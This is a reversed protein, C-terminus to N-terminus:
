QERWCRGTAAKGLPRTRASMVPRRTLRRQAAVSVLPAFSPWPRQLPSVACVRVVSVPGLYNSSVSPWGGADGSGYEGRCIRIDDTQSVHGDSRGPEYEPWPSAAALGDESAPRRLLWSARGLWTSRPPTQLYSPELSPPLSSGLTM